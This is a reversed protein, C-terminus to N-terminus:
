GKSEVTVAKKLIGRLVDSGLEVLRKDRPNTEPSFKDGHFLNCRIQYLIRLLLQLKNWSEIQQCAKSDITTKKCEDRICNQCAYDIGCLHRLRLTAGVVEPKLKQPQWGRGEAVCDMRLLKSVSDLWIENESALTDFLRGYKGGFYIAKKKDKHPRENEPTDDAVKNYFYNFMMWYNFFQWCNVQLNPWPLAKKIAEKVEELTEEYQTTM